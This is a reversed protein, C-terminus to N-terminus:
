VDGRGWQGGARAWALILVIVVSTVFIYPLGKASSRFGTAPAEIRIALWTVEALALMALGM